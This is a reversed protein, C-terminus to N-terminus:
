SAEYRLNKTSIFEKIVIPASSQAGNSSDAAITISVQIQVISNMKIQNTRGSNGVSPDNGSTGDEMFYKIQFDSVNYVLERKEIQESALKGTQNGYTKRVLVGAETVSYSILNVKKITGGGATSILMNLAQGTGTASQNIGLPDISGNGLQITTANPISTAIGVVQTTGTSSEFLYLDYPRCNTTGGATTTVKVNNGSAAAGTYNVLLAGNFAIDRSIFAAVDTKGGFNLTNATINDGGIISTMLDRETDADAKIGFLANGVNDPVNGGTRHYGLGANIADRRLYELAIRASRMQDIRTNVTNKQVSALRAVGYVAAIAILFVTMSLVMEILTFGQANPKYKQHVNINM